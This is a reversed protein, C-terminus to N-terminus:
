PGGGLLLAAVSGLAIAVGYPVSIAGSTALSVREGGRGLTLYFRALGGTNLLLPILVGRRACEVLSMVGGVIATFLGALLFGQPGLFAGVAMLLKADGGGVARVAFLPVTILM